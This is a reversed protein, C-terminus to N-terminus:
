PSDAATCRASARRCSTKAAAPSSPRATDATRRPAASSPRRPSTNPDVTKFYDDMSVYHTGVGKKELAEAIKMSTTTKGSGSPGSLLVIPSQAMNKIILDAAHELKKNYADDCEQIFGKPDFVTKM